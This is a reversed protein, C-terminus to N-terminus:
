QTLRPTSSPERDPAIEPSVQLENLAQSCQHESLDYELHVMAEIIFSEGRHLSPEILTKEFTNTDVDKLQPLIELALAKLKRAFQPPELVGQYDLSATTFTTRIKQRIADPFLTQIPNDKPLLRLDGDGTYAIERALVESIKEMTISGLPLRPDLSLTFSVQRENAGDFDIHTYQSVQSHLNDFSVGSEWAANHMGEKIAATLEEEQESFWDHSPTDKELIFQLYTPPLMSQM